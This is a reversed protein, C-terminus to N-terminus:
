SVLLIWHFLLIHLICKGVPPKIYDLNTLSDAHTGFYVARNLICCSVGNHFWLVCRTVDYFYWIGRQSPSSPCASMIDHWLTMVNAHLVPNCTNTALNSKKNNLVFMYIVAISLISPFSSFAERTEVTLFSCSAKSLSVTWYWTLLIQRGAGRFIM